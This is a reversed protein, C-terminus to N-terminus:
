KKNVFKMMDAAAAEMDEPKITEIHWTQHAADDFAHNPRYDNVCTIKCWSSEHGLSQIFSQILNDRVDDSKRRIIQLVPQNGNSFDVEITVKSRM